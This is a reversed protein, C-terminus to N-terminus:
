NEAPYYIVIIKSVFYLFRKPNSLAILSDNQNYTEIGFVFNMKLHINSEELRLTKNQIRWENINSKFLRKIIENKIGKIAIHQDYNRVLKDNRFKCFEVRRVSFEDSLCDSPPKERMSRITASGEEVFYRLRWQIIM